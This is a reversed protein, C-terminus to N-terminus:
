INLQERIFSVACIKCFYKDKIRIAEEIKIEKQCNKVCCKVFKENIDGDSM